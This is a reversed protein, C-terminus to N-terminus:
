SAICIHSASFPSITSASVGFRASSGNQSRIRGPVRPAAHPSRRHAPRTSPTPLGRWLRPRSRPSPLGARHREPLRGRDAPGDLTHAAEPAAPLRDARGGRRRAEHTRRPNPARGVLSEDRGNTQRPRRDGRQGASPGCHPRGSRTTWHERFRRRQWRLVTGPTVIVLSQRWGAWVRAVWVWFLRDTPRLKPRTVMRRYVALQQRLALNELALQHRGGCLFPFLRVLHLLTSIM